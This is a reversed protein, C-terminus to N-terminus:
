FIYFSYNYVEFSVKTIDLKPDDENTNVKTTSSSELLKSKLSVKPAGDVIEKKPKKQIPAIVPKKSTKKISGINNKPIKIDTKTTEKSVKSTTKKIDTKKTEKSAKSATKNIDTKKTEKSAKSATKKIAKPERSCSIGTLHNGAKLDEFADTIKVINKLVGGTPKSFKKKQIAGPLSKKIPKPKFVGTKAKM